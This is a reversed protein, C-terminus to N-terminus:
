ISQYHTGCFHALRRHFCTRRAEPRRASRPIFIPSLDSTGYVAMSSVPICCDTMITGYLIISYETCRSACISFFHFIHTQSITVLVSSSSHCQSVTHMTRAAAIHSLTAAVAASLSHRIAIPIKEIWDETCLFTACLMSLDHLWLENNKM